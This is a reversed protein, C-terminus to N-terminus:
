NELSTAQNLYKVIKLLDGSNIKSDYTVDAAKLIVPNDFIATSNLHKVIRLLDGSNIKGDGTVEGYIIAQYEYVLENNSNIFQLKTGSGILDEDALQKDNIDKLLINYTTTFKNKLEKLTMKEGIKSILKEDVKLSEDIVIDDNGIELVKVIAEAKIETGKLAVILKTEGEKIGVIKGEEIKAVAKDVIEIDYETIDTDVTSIDFEAMGDKLVTYMEKDLSISPNKDTVTVVCTATKAQDKSKVTIVVSGTKVATIKGNADVTAVADNASSWEVDKYKADSPQITATINFTDGVKLEKASENLSISSVKTYPYEYVYSSWIYGEIKAGNKEFEIYDWGTDIGKKIRTIVIKKSVEAPEVLKCVVNSDSSSDASSRIKFLDSLNDSPDDLYVMTNDNEYYGITPVPSAMAPMNDYIPIYFTYTNNLVGARSIGNYAIKAEGKPALINTMYQSSLIVTANGYPNAVDFKQFYATNQGYKLYNERLWEMGGAIAKEQTNWGKSYALNIGAQVAGSGDVAGINFFNYYGPYKSNKGSISGNNIIDCGTEQRIRSVIFTPAITTDVGVKHIVSAYTKEGIMANYMPTNYAIDNVAVETDSDINKDIVRFQFIGEDNLFNRPDLTYAVAARSALVFGAANYATSNSEEVKKWADGYASNQIRSYTGSAEKNLVTNWDLHTYFAKLIWSPHESKLKDIHSQYSEPFTDSITSQAIGYCKNKSVIFLITFLFLIYIIQKKGKKLVGKIMSVLREM